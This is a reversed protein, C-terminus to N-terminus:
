RPVLEFIIELEDEGELVVPRMEDRHGSAAASVDFRNGKYVHRRRDQTEHIVSAPVSLPNWGSGAERMQAGKNTQRTWLQEVHTYEVPMKLPTPGLDVGNWTINAGTPVSRVFVDTTVLDKTEYQLYWQSQCGGLLLAAAATLVCLGPSRM